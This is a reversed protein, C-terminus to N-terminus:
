AGKAPRSLQMAYVIGVLAPSALGLAFGVLWSPHFAVTWMAAAVLIGLSLGFGLLAPGTRLSGGFLSLSARGLVVLNVMATAAGLLFGSTLSGDSGRLREFGYLAGAILGTVIV